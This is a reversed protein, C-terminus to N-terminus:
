RFQILTASITCFAGQGSRPIAKDVAGALMASWERFHRVAAVV